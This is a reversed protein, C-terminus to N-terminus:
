SQKEMLLFYFKENRDTDPNIARLYTKGDKVLKSIQYTGFYLINWNETTEDYEEGYHYYAFKPDSGSMYYFQYKPSFFQGHQNLCYPHDGGLADYDISYDDNTRDKFTLGDETSFLLAVVKNDNTTLLTNLEETAEVWGEATDLEKILENPYGTTPTTNKMQEIATVLGQPIAVSAMYFVKKNGNADKEKDTGKLYTIGDVVATEFSCYGSSTKNENVHIEYSFYTNNDEVFPFIQGMGTYKSDVLGFAFYHLNLDPSIVAEVFYAETPTEWKEGNYTYLVKAAKSASSTVLPKVVSEDAARWTAKELAERSAFSSPTPQPEKDEVTVDKLDIEDEKVEPLKAGEKNNAVDNLEKTYQDKDVGSLAAIAADTTQKGSDTLNKKFNSVSKNTEGAAVAKAIWADYVKTKLTTEVTVKVDGGNLLEDAALQNEMFKDSGNWASFRYDVGSLLGDVICAYGSKGDKELFTAERDTLKLSADEVGKKYGAIKVTIKDVVQAARLSSAPAALPTGDVLVNMSTTTSTKKSSGGGGGCGVMAFTAMLAVVLCTGKLLNKMKFEKQFFKFLFGFCHNLNIMAKTKINESLLYLNNKSFKVRLFM